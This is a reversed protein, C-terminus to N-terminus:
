AAGGGSGADEAAGAWERGSVSSLDLCVGTNDLVTVIFNLLIIRFYTRKACYLGSNWSILSHTGCCLMCLLTVDNHITQLLTLLFYTCAPGLYLRGKVLYIIEHTLTWYSATTLYSWITLIISMHIPLKVLPCVCISNYIVPGNDALHLCM